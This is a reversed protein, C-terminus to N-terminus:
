RPTSNDLDFPVGLEAALVRLEALVAQKVPIGLRDNAAEAAAEPDGPVLVGTADRGRAPPTGRLEALMARLDAFFGEPDRFADIRWAMFTHGIGAPQDPGRSGSVRASWAAGALPGCLTDVIVGLGYGKHGGTAREGGLPTLWRAAWPDTTPQGAEDLAWGSPIPEGARRAIEIKGWAVASTAMDLVLPPEDGSGTPVAVALPNTGLMGRTGFTPTVLPSANTMALGGLGRRPAMLAYYAAMGFHNGHRVTTLCVGATEAKAICREMAAAALTLGFGNNADLALTAPTERLTRLSAATDILGRRLRNVFYPLRAVGHSDVGRVDATVLINAARRAEDPPLGAATLLVVVFAALRELPFRPAGAWPDPAHAAAESEQDAEPPVRREMM